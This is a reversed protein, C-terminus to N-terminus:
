TPKAVACSVLVRKRIRSEGGITESEMSKGGENARQCRRENVLACNCKVKRSVLPGNDIRVRSEKQMLRVRSNTKMGGKAFAKSNGMEDLVCEKLFQSNSFEMETVRTGAM